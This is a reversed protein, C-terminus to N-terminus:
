CPVNKLATTMSLNELPKKNTVLFDEKVGERDSANKEWRM